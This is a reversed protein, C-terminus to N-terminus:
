VDVGEVSPFLGQMLGKKHIKLAEIKRSQANILEDLSTLCDAIKQQEPLEPYTLPMKMFTNPTVSMRDHRAGTNSIQFLYKHWCNTQFYQEFFDNKFDIFEFVTYLPSMTGKAVKNKSIPGVPANKSIRPNYVYDGFDVIFYNDLNNQNAIDKEFFDRQDVVGNVASNTM